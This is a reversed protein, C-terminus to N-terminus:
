VQPVSAMSSSASVFATTSGTSIFFTVEAEVTSVPTVRHSFIWKCILYSSAYFISFIDRDIDVYYTQKTTTQKSFTTYM